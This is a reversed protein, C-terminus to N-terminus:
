KHLKKITKKKRYRKDLPMGFGPNMQMVLEINKCIFYYRHIYVSFYATFLSLISICVILVIFVASDTYIFSLILQGLVYSAGGIAAWSVPITSKQQLKYYTGSYLAKWNLLNMGVLLAIFLLVGVILSGSGEAGMNMYMMKQIALFYIYTNVVGYVGLFLYYSKEFKYPAILYVLAWLQIIGIPIIAALFYSLSFPEGVIPLLGIVYLFILFFCIINSRNVQPTQFRLYSMTIKDVNKKEIPTREGM